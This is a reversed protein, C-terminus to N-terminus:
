SYLNEIIKKYKMLNLGAGIGVGLAIALGMNEFAVGFCLV